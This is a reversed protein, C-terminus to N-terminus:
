ASNNPQKYQVRHVIIIIIIIISLTSACRYEYEYEYEDSGYEYEYCRYMSRAYRLYSVRDL